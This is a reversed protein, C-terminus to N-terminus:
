QGPALHGIEDSVDLLRCLVPALERGGVLWNVSAAKQVFTSMGKTRLAAPQHSDSGCVVAILSRMKLPRRPVSAVAGFGPRRAGTRPRCEETELRRSVGNKADQFWLENKSIHLPLDTASEQM